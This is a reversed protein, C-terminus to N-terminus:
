RWSTSPLPASFRVDLAHRTTVAEVCQATLIIWPCVNSLAIAEPVQKEAGECDVKLFRVTGVAQEACIQYLTRCEASFAHPAHGAAEHADADIYFGRSVHKLARWLSVDEGNQAYTVFPSESM